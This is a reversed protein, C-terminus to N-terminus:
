YFIILFAARRFFSVSLFLRCITPIINKDKFKQLLSLALTYDGQDILISVILFIIEQEHEKSYPTTVCLKIERFINWLSDIEAGSRTKPSQKMTILHPLYAKLIKFDLMYFPSNEITCSTLFSELESLVEVFMELNCLSFWRIRWLKDNVSYILQLIVQLNVNTENAVSNLILQM